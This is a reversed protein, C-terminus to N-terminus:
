ESVDQGESMAAILSLDLEKAADHGLMRLKQDLAAAEVVNAIERGAAVPIYVHPVDVGLVKKTLRLQGSRDSEFKALDDTMTVVMDLRKSERVSAVGFLSPVHIIGLGRIEMHFRTAAIASGVVHGSSDVRLATVDDSILAHGKKVLALSTESKGIGPRGEIMVGMGLIEVMTGLTTTRPAMLNEMIITAGNIFDKTILESRLVPIGSRESIEIIEPAVERGRSIVLCPIPQEFFTELSAKVAEPALSEMYAHEALGFVQIRKHAFYQFFGTLALGPRNIAAETVPRSLGAEGSVLELSVKERAAELFDGVTVSANQGEIDAM